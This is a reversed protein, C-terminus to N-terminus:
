RKGGAGTPAVAVGVIAPIVVQATDVHISPRKSSSLWISDAARAPAQLTSLTPWRDHIHPQHPPPPSLRAVPAANPPHHLPSSPSSPASNDLIDKLHIHPSLSSSSSTSADSPPHRSLIILHHHTPVPPPNHALQRQHSRGQRTPPHGGAQCQCQCQSIAIVASRRVIPSHPFTPHGHRAGSVGLVTPRSNTNADSQLGEM